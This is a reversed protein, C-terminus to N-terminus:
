LEARQRHVGEFSPANRGKPDDIWMCTGVSGALAYGMGDIYGTVFAGKFQESYGRWASGDLVQGFCCASLFLVTVFCRM